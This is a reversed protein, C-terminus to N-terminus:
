EYGQGQGAWVLLCLLMQWLPREFTELFCNFAAAFVDNAEVVIEVTLKFLIRFYKTELM